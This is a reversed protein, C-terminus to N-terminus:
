CKCKYCCQIHSDLVWCMPAYLGLPMGIAASLLLTGILLLFYELFFHFCPFFVLIPPKTSIELCWSHWKGHCYSPLALGSPWSVITYGGAWRGFEGGGSSSLGLSLSQKGLWSSRLRLFEDASSLVPCPLPLNDLSLSNRQPSYYRSEGVICDLLNCKAAPSAHYLTDASHKHTRRPENISWGFFSCQLSNITYNILVSTCLFSTKRYMSFYRCPDHFGHRNPCSPNALQVANGGILITSSLRFTYGAGIKILKHEHKAVIAFQKEAQANESNWRFVPVHIVQVQSFWLLEGASQHLQSKGITCCMEIFRVKLITSTWGINFNPMGNRMLLKSTRPSSNTNM